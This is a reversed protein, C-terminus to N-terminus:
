SFVESLVDLSKISSLGPFHIAYYHLLRDILKTREAGSFKFKHMNGLTMRSLKIMIATEEPSLIDRHLHDDAVPIGARMDFADGKEYHELDPYIGAIPLFHILFWIHFNALGSTLLDLTRLSSVIFDWATDDPSSDRLYKNLFESIFLVLSSKIPNFYLDRWLELPAITGLIHLERNQHINIDTEVVSLPMLRANRMRTTKGGGAASLFAMRGRTRTFLTVVNHKDNHKVIDIVIGQIKERAM